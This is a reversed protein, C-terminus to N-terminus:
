GTFSEENLIRRVRFWLRVVRNGIEDQMPNPKCLESPQRQSPSSKGWWKVRVERLLRNVKQQVQRSSAKICTGGMKMPFGTRHHGSKGRGMSEILLSHGSRPFHFIINQFNM